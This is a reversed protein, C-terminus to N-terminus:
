LVQHHTIKGLRDLRVKIPSLKQFAKFSRVRKWVIDAVYRHHDFVYYGSSLKRVRYLHEYLLTLSASDLNDWPLEAVVTPDLGLLFYDFRRLTFHM